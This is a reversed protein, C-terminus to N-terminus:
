NHSDYENPCCLFWKCPNVNEQLSYVNYKRLVTEMSANSIFFEIHCVCDNESDMENERWVILYKDTLTHETKRTGDRTIHTRM